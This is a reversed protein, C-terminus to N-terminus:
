WYRRPMVELVRGTRVNVLLLDDGYRIWRNYRGPSRLRFAGYDNIVYRPSYFAPRLMFGSRVPRYAWSRYPAVYNVYRRNVHHRPARQVVVVTNRHNRVYHKAHHKGHHKNPHADAAAAPVMMAAMLGILISKRM